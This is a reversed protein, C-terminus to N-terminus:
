DPKQYQLVINVVDTGTLIQTFDVESSALMSDFNAKEELITVLSILKISDLNLDERLSSALNVKNKQNKPVISKIIELIVKEVKEKNM